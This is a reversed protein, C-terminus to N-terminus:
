VKKIPKHSRGTKGKDDFHVLHSMKASFDPFSLRDNYGMIVDSLTTIYATGVEQMGINASVEDRNINTFAVVTEKPPLFAYGLGKCINCTIDPQGTEPIICSCLLAEEWLAKHGKTLVLSNFEDVKFDPRM